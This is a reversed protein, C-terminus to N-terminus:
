TGNTVGPAIFGLSLNSEVAIITTDFKRSISTTSARGKPYGQNEIGVLWCEVVHQTSNGFRRILVASVVEKVDCMDGFSCM